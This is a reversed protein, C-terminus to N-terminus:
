REPSLERENLDLALKGLGSLELEGLTQGPDYNGPNAGGGENSKQDEKTGDADEFWLQSSGYSICLEEDKEIDRLATYTICDAETNRIWLVNQMNSHNFM